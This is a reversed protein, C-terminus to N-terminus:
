RKTRSIRFFQIIKQHNRFTHSIRKSICHIMREKAGIQVACRRLNYDRPSEAGNDTGAANLAMICNRPQVIPSKGLIEFDVVTQKALLGVTTNGVNRAVLNYLRPGAYM